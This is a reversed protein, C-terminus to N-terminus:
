GGEVPGLYEDLWGLTAKILTNRPVSHGGPHVEWRKHEAPTGLLEFLPRQSTEKPFFFDFEGNLMLVPLRVRGVFHFPDAEPLARQFKLGAVMLMATRFRPEVALMIPAMRGGWSTGWYALKGADVDDRTELYDVSRRLEKSWKLVYDRYAVTESPQDTTLDGGREYTGVYVPVMVARGSQLFFDLGTMRLEESSRQHIVGSGPFHVLTQFPPAGRKPLLLYAFMREGYGADFAIRQRIWDGEDREDEIM